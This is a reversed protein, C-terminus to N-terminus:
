PEHSIIALVGLDNFVGAQIVFFVFGLLLDRCRKTNGTGRHGAPQFQRVAYPCHLDADYVRKGIVRIQGLRHFRLEVQVLHDDSGHLITRVLSAFPLDAMGGRSVQLRDHRIPERDTCSPPGGHSCHGLSQLGSFVHLDAYHLQQPGSPM